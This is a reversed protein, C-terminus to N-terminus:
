AGYKPTKWLKFAIEYLFRDALIARNGGQEQFEEFSFIKAGDRRTVAEQHQVALMPHHHRVDNLLKGEKMTYSQCPLLSALSPSIEELSILLSSDDSKDSSISGYSLVLALYLRSATNEEVTKEQLGLMSLLKSAASLPDPPVEPEESIGTKNCLEHLATVSFGVRKGFANATGSNTVMAAKMGMFREAITPINTHKSCYGSSHGLTNSSDEFEKEKNCLDHVDLLQSLERVVREEEKLERPADRLALFGCTGLSALAHLHQHCPGLAGMIGDGYIVLARGAKDAM